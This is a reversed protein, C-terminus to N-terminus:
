IKKAKWNTSTGPYRFCAGRYLDYGLSGPGRALDGDRVRLGASASDELRRRVHRREPANVITM